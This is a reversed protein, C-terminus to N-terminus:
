AQSFAQWLTWFGILVFGLGAAYSLYRPNIYQMILSGGVVAMGTALMLALSAGIFVTIPSVSEKTSFLLTALQTKDGLEALFVTGFVIAFTKIDM